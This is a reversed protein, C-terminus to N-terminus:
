GVENESEWFQTDVNLRAKPRGTIDDYVEKGKTAILVWGYIYFDYYKKAIYFGGNWM